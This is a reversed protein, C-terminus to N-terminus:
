AVAQSLQQSDVPQSDLWAQWTTYLTAINLQM